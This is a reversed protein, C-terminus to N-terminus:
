GNIEAIIERQVENAQDNLDQMVSKPDKGSLLDAVADKMMGRVEEYSAAPPTESGATPMLDRVIDFQPNKARYDGLLDLTSLRVPTYNTLTVFEALNENKLFNQLWLWVAVQKRKDDKKTIGFSPGYLNARPKTTAHPVSYISWNFDAGKSIAKGYYPLGSSSGTTFLVRGNGFDTQEGYKETAAALCGEAAMESILTAAAMAEKSDLSYTNTHKNMTDGGMALIVSGLRSADTGFSWGMPSASTDVAKSFPQKSAKCAAKKFESPSKPIESYGLEKLWDMNAYLVEMSRRLPFGLRQGGFDAAIDQGLFGAPIDSMVEAPLAWKASNVLDNMDMLSDAGPMNWNALQNQYGISMDPLEDTGILNVFKTNIEGYHGASVAKITIGYSNSKNFEETMKDMFAVQSDRNVRYWVTAEAGTPDVSEYSEALATAIFGFVLFTALILKKM